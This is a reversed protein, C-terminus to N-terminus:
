IDRSDPWDRRGGDSLRLKGTVRGSAMAAAEKEEAAVKEKCDM